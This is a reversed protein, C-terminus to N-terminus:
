AAGAEREIKQLRDELRLMQAKIEDSLDERLWDDLKNLTESVAAIMEPAKAILKANAEVCSKAPWTKIEAIGALRADSKDSIRISYSNRVIQWPGPTWAQKGSEVKDPM